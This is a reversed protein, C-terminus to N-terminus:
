QAVPARHRHRNLVANVDPLPTPRGMSPQALMVTGFENQVSLARDPVRSVASLLQFRTLVKAAHRLDNPPVEAVGHEYEVIVKRGPVTYAWIDDERVIRGTDYLSIKAIEGSTLATGDISASLITRPFMKTLQIAEDNTGSLVDRQYRYVYSAGVYDEIVAESWELADILDATPFTSSEGDVSDLARIEAPSAYFGGVVEHITKFEMANSGWTGSWTATLRKLDSQGALSYQYVGSGPATTATGAAVVTSGAEDVIGVTVSGDADTAVEDSYATIELVEAASRLVQRSNTSPTAFYAM